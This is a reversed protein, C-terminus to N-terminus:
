LVAPREAAGLSRQLNRRWKRPTPAKSSMMPSDKGSRREAAAAASIDAAVVDTHSRLSISSSASGRKRVSRSSVRLSARNPAVLLSQPQVAFTKDLRLSCVRPIGARMLASAVPVVIDRGMEDYEDAWTVLVVFGNGAGWHRLKVILDTVLVIAEEASQPTFPM